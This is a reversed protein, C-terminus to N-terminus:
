PSPMQNSLASPKCALHATAPSALASTRVTVNQTGLAPTSSPAKPLYRPRTHRAKCAHKAHRVCRDPYRMSRPSNQRWVGSFDRLEANTQTLQSESTLNWKGAENDWVCDKVATQVFRNLDFKKATGIVYRRIEEGSAMFSTWDHKPTWPLTYLHILVDCTM